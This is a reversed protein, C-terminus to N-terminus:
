LEWVAEARAPAGEAGAGSVSVFNPPRYVAQQDKPHHILHYSSWQKWSEDEVVLPQQIARQKDEQKSEAPRKGCCGCIWAAAARSQQQGM